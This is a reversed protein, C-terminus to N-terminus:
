CPSCPGEARFRGLQCCAAAYVTQTAADGCGVSSSVPCSRSRPSRGITPRDRRRHSRVGAHRRPVSHRRRMGSRSASDGMVKVIHLVVDGDAIPCASPHRRSCRTGQIRCRHRGHGTARRAARRASWSTAARARRWAGRPVLGDLQAHASGVDRTARSSSEPHTANGFSMDAHGTAKPLLAASSCVGAAGGGSLIVPRGGAGAHLRRRATM